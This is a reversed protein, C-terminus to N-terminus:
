RKFRQRFEDASLYKEALPIEVAGNSNSLEVRTAEIITDGWKVALIMGPLGCTQELPGDSVPINECYWVVFEHDSTAKHCIFGAIEREEGSHLKWNECILTDRFVSKADDVLSIYLIKNELNKYINVKGIPKFRSEGIGEIFRYVSKGGAYEYRFLVPQLKTLEPMMNKLESPVHSTKVYDIILNLNQQAILCNAHLLILLFVFFNNKKM